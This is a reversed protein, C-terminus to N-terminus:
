RPGKWHSCLLKNRPNWDFGISDLARMREETMGGLKGEKSKKYAGRQDFTWGRLKPSISYNAPIVCHGHMGMFDRLQQLRVTWILDFPDWCFGISDLVKVRATTMPSNKDQKMLTYHYRQVKIWVSLKPYKPHDKPVKSYGYDERFSKFQNLQRYWNVEKANWAFGLDNLLDIRDQTMSSQKKMMM